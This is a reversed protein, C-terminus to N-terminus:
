ERILDFFNVGGDEKAVAYGIPTGQNDRIIRDNGWKKPSNEWNNPSNEWNYPSNEFNYPSNQWNHPSSNWDQALVMSALSCLILISYIITKM